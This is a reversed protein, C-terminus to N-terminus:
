SKSTRKRKEEGSPKCAQATMWAELTNYAELAEGARFHRELWAAAGPVDLDPPIAQEAALAAHLREDLPFAHTELSILSLRAAVFQPVGELSELYQRADRRGLGHLHALTVGHQRHYIDNLAARMRVSRERSRPYGAGIVVAIEDPLCVRLENYDVVSEHLRCNAVAACHTGSEWAMFSFVLHWLLADGSESRGQQWPDTLEGAPRVRKLLAALKRAPDPPSL